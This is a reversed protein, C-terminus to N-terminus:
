SGARESVVVQLRPCTMGMRGGAGGQVETEENTFRSSKVGPYYWRQFHGLTTKHRGLVLCASNASQQPAPPPPYVDQFMRRPM